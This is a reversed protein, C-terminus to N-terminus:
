CFHMAQLNYLGYGMGECELMMRLDARETKYKLSQFTYEFGEFKFEFGKFVFEFAEFM